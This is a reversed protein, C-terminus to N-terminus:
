TEKLPLIRAPVGVASRDAPVDKLVVANAGLIANDGIKIAGLIVAGSSIIVNDGVRPYSKQAYADNHHKGITVNQLITAQAGIIAQGIVVGTPHPMFCGAGIIAEPALDCSSLWVNLRWVLMAIHKWIGGKQRCLASVRYLFLALFGPIALLYFFTWLVGKHRVEYRQLDARLLDCLSPSPLSSFNM